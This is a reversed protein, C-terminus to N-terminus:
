KKNNLVEQKLHLGHQAVFRDLDEQWPRMCDIGLRQLHRNELISNLPRVAPTPYEASTCPTIECAVQMKELFRRALEYWSCHGQGTAHFLGSANNEIVAAIQRALRWSWTPCGVQDDVVRLPKGALAHTLITKLFNKGHAGYLWATRLIAHESGSKLIAQEGALKSIGYYAVPGTADEERYAKPLPRKGDFVYDTSIHILRAGITAAATVLHRPGDANAAWAAKQQSECADVATFAACNVIGDPRKQAVFRNVPDPDTFDFEPLDLGVLEYNAALVQMLDRGLQGRHGVVAIKM